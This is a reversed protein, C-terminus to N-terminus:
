LGALLLIVAALALAVALQMWLPRLWRPTDPYIDDPPIMDDTKPGHTRFQENDASM